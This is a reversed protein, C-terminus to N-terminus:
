KLIRYSSETTKTDASSKSEELIIAKSTASTLICALASCMPCGLGLGGSNKSVEQCLDAFVSDVLRVLVYDGKVEIEVDRVVELDEVLVSPLTNILSELGCDKLNFGLKSEVLNSLALGPPIVLLGEPDGLFTKEDFTNQPIKSSAASPIFALARNFGESPIYVSREHYNLGVIMKDIAKLSSLATAKLLDSRVYNHAQIFFM